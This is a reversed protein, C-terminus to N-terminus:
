CLATQDCKVADRYVPVSINVTSFCSKRIFDKKLLTRTLTGTKDSHSSFAPYISLNVANSGFLLPKDSPCRHLPHTMLFYNAILLQGNVILLKKKRNIYKGLSSTQGFYGKPTSSNQEYPLIEM